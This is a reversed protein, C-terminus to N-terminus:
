RNLWSPVEVETPNYVTEVKLSQDMYRVLDDFMQDAAKAKRALNDMMRQGGDTYVLDVSAPAIRTLVDLNDGLHICGRAM